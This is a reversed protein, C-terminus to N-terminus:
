YGQSELWDACAERSVGSTHMNSVEDVWDLPLNLHRSIYEPSGNVSWDNRNGRYAYIDQGYKAYFAAGLACGVFTQEDKVMPIGRRILASPKEGQELHKVISEDM